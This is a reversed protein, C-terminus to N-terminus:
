KDSRNKTASVSLQKYLRRGEIVDLTWAASEKWTLVKVDQAMKRRQENTLGAMVRVAEALHMPSELSFYMAGSGGVERFVPIDSALVPTKHLAAEVIPLGFGEAFSSTILATSVSYLVNIEADTPKEFLFLRRGFEPHNRIRAEIEVVNWGIKGAFCLRYNHGALWLQDFADLSFAHGKRPELTGVMLFLPAENSDVLERVAERISTHQPTVDIDAGLHIYNIDMKRSLRIKKKSIYSLVNDAVDRSICVLQDSEKIACNLWPEFVNIIGQDCTEPFIIPILDYIMTVIKGGQKRVRDFIPLFRDYVEWSSDLMFLVDGPQIIIPTDPGLSKKPLDFIYEPLSNASLLQDGSIRITEIKVSPSDLLCFERVFSIVVRQIGTGNDAEALCTVDILIRPQCRLNSNAAANKAVLRIFSEVPDLTSLAEILPAFLKREDMQIAKHIADVYADAIIISNNVEDFQKIVVPTPKWGRVYFKEIQRSQHESHVILGQANKLINWNIPWKTWAESIGIKVAEVAGRLGQIERIVNIFYDKQNEWNETSFPLRGLVSDQLIVVGPMEQLLDVMQTHFEDNGFIYVVTEYNDRREILDTWPYISFNGFSPDTVDLGPEVFIDIEYHGSLYPLLTASFETINSKQQSLPSVYAIRPTPLNPAVKIQKKKPRKEKYLRDIADWAIKATKEWSFQKVRELGYAALEVRFVDDTLANYLSATVDQDNSTDFLIDSRGVLEPLSSNNSAIVPSGCAMAELVPLGLGEYLSPFFFLKCLNYLLVLDEDTLNDLMVVDKLTLGISRLENKISVKDGNYNFVLQHSNIIHRPLRAYTRLAGSRNKRFDDAGIYLVFPRSIGLRHLFQRKGDEMLELKKFQSSPAGSINVVKDPHIELIDIADKRTSESISLLLDYKSLNGLKDLYWKKYKPNGDLYQEHFIYPILDYLITAQKYPLFSNQPPPVLGKEGLPRWGEFPSPTFNIDPEIIQYAQQILTSAVQVYAPLNEPTDYRIPQHYYPLFNGPSLLRIFEQRLEDFSEPYLASALVTVDNTGRLKVMARTLSFTYRGIGRLRSATQCAFMDMLLKM